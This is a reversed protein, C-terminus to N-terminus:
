YDGASRLTLALQEWGDGVLTQYKHTSPEVQDSRVPAGGLRCRNLAVTSHLSRVLLMATPQRLRINQANHAAAGSNASRHLLVVVFQRPFSM